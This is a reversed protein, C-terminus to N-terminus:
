TSNIIQTPQRLLTEQRLSAAIGQPYRRLIKSAIIGIDFGYFVFGEKEGRANGRYERQALFFVELNSTSNKLHM